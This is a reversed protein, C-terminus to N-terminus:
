VIVTGDQPRELGGLISLFTSKGAGSPGQLAAYGGAPIHLDVSDLVPVTGARSRYTHSLRRVDISAGAGMSGDDRVAQLEPGRPQRTLTQKTNISSKM